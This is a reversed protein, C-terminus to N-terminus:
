KGVAPSRRWPLYRSRLRPLFSQCKSTTPQALVFPCIDGFEPTLPQKPVRAAQLTARRRKASTLCRQLPKLVETSMGYLPSRTSAHQRKVHDCREKVVSCLVIFALAPSQSNSRYGSISGCLRTLDSMVTVCVNATNNAPKGILSAADIGALQQALPYKWRTSAHCPSKSRTLYARPDGQHPRSPSNSGPEPRVSAAHKICALRVIGPSRDWHSLPSRTRLVHSVQGSSPFLGPFGPNIGLVRLAGCPANLFPEPAKPPDRPRDAQQHPLPEGLCRRTAPRLPRDAM